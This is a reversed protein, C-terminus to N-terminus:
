GGGSGSGSNGSGTQNGAMGSNSGAQTQNQLSPTSGPNRQLTQRTFPVAGGGGFGAQRQEERMKFVRLQKYVHYDIPIMPEDEYYPLNHGVRVEGQSLDPEEITKHVRPTFDERAPEVSTEDVPKFVRIM